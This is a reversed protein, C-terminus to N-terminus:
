AGENLHCRRGVRQLPKGPKADFLTKVIQHPPLEAGKVSAVVGVAM